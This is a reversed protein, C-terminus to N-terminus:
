SIKIIKGEPANQEVGRGGGVILCLLAGRMVNGM